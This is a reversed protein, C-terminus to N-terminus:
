RLSVVQISFNVVPIHDPDDRMRDLEEQLREVQEPSANEACVCSHPHVTVVHVDFNTVMTYDPDNLCLKVQERLEEIQEQDMYENWYIRAVVEDAPNTKEDCM